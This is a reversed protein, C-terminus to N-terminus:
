FGTKVGHNASNAAEVQALIREGEVRVQALGEGEVGM